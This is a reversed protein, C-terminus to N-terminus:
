FGCPFIGHIIQIHNELSIEMSQKEQANKTSGSKRCHKRWWLQTKRAMIMDVTSPVINAHFLSYEYM